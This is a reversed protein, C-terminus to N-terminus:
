VNKCGETIIKYMERIKYEMEFDGLTRYRIYESINMGEAEAKNLLIKHQEATLRVQVFDNKPKYVSGDMRKQKPM